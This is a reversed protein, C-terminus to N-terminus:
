KKTQIAKINMVSEDQFQEESQTFRKETCDSMSPKRVIEDEQLFRQQLWRAQELTSQEGKLIAACRWGQLRRRGDDQGNRKVNGQM